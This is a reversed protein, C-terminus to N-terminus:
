RRDLHTENLKGYYSEMGVYHNDQNQCDKDKIMIAYSVQSKKVIFKFNYCNLRVMTLLSFNLFKKIIIIWM